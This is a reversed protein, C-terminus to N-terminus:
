DSVRCAITEAYVRLKLELHLNRSIESQKSADNKYRRRRAPEKKFRLARLFLAPPVGASGSLGALSFISSVAILTVGSNAASCPRVASSYARM